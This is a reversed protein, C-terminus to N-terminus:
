VRENPRVDDPCPRRSGPHRFRRRGPQRDRQTSQLRRHHLYGRRSLRPLTRGRPPAQAARVDRAAAYSYDHKINRARSRERRFRLRGEVLGNRLPGRPRRQRAALPRVLAAMEADFDIRPGPMATAPRCPGVPRGAPSAARRAPALEAVTRFSNNRYGDAWGAVIMVPCEIREYGETTGGLRVSGHDWYAGHRNERLWTLVWPECTELRRLWEDYWGGDGGWVAPVPPLVCMPTMYHDYDVLDVLRLAGGRWHVDDTWRDDTAYIACIAKLAPPRECAIQLSNFGSYSTGFMGVQGDCWEQEALWAIADPLDRQEAEQYEDLPTARRRAPAASTSGASPTGTSRASRATARPTRRRSTTRATPCRRWCARSRGPEARRAPLPDRGPPERRPGPDPGGRGEDAATSGTAVLERLSRPTHITESTNGDRGVVTPATFMSNLVAEEAAEVVAAFLPDLARGTVVPTGDPKGDRDLRMGTGFAMFIEGSGHHAVSGARALGLGVRRALRRVVRRRGAADTVM